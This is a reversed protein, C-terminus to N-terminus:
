CYICYICRCLFTRVIMPFECFPPNAEFAGQQPDFEEFFCGSSGFWREIDPHASHYEDLTCNWPSAFCEHTIGM